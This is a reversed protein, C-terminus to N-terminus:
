RGRTPAALRESFTLARVDMARVGHATEKEMESTAPEEAVNHCENKSDQCFVRSKAERDAPRCDEQLDQRIDERKRSTNIGKLDRDRIRSIGEPKTRRRKGFTRGKQTRPV